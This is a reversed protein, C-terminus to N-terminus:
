GLAPPPARAAQARYTRAPQPLASPLWVLALQELAMDAVARVVAPPSDPLLHGLVLCVGDGAAHGLGDARKGRLPNQTPRHAPRQVEALTQRQAQDPVARDAQDGAAIPAPDLRGPFHLVGHHLSLWQGALLLAVLVAPLRSRLVRDLHARIPTM